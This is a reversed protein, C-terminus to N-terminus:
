VLKHKKNNKVNINHNSLQCKNAHYKLILFELWMHRRDSTVDLIYNAILLAGIRNQM